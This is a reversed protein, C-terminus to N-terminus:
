TVSTWCSSSCFPDNCLLAELRLESVLCKDFLRGEVSSECRRKSVLEVLTRHTDSSCLRGNLLSTEFDVDCMEQDLDDM